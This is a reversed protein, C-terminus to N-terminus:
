EKLISMRETFYQQLLDLEIVIENRLKAEVTMRQYDEKMRQKKALQKRSELISLHKIENYLAFIAPFQQALESSLKLSDLLVALRWCGESYDCQEEKMARVIIKVSSFVKLDHKALGKQHALEAQQQALKQASVQRLLKGAYFALSAIIIVALVLAILWYDNM